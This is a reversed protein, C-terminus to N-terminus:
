YNFMMKFKNFTLIFGFENNTKMERFKFLNMKVKGEEQEICPYTPPPSLWEDTEKKYMHSRDSAFLNL